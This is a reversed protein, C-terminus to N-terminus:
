GSLEIVDVPPRRRVDREPNEALQHPDPQSQHGHKRQSRKVLRTEAEQGRAFSHRM